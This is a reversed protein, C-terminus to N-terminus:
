GLVNRAMALITAAMVCSGVTIRRSLVPLTHSDSKSASHRSDCMVTLPECSGSIWNWLRKDDDGDSGGKRQAM